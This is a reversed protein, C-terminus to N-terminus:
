LSSINFTQSYPWPIRGQCVHGNAKFIDAVHTEKEEGTTLNHDIKGVAADDGAAEHDDEARVAQQRPQQRFLHRLLALDRHRHEIAVPNLHQLHSVEGGVGRRSASLSLFTFTSHSSIHQNLLKV